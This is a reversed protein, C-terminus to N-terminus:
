EIGGVAKAYAPYYFYFYAYATQARWGFSRFLSLQLDMSPLIVTSKPFFGAPDPTLMCIESFLAPFVVFCRAQGEFTSFGKERKESVGISISFL